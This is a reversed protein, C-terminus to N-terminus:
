QSGKPTRKKYQRKQRKVSHEGVPKEIGSTQLAPKTETAVVDPKETRGHQGRLVRGRDTEEFVVKFRGSRVMSEIRALSAVEDAPIYEGIERRKGWLTLPRRVEYGIPQKRAM